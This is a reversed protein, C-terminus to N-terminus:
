LTDNIKWYHKIPTNEIIKYGMKNYFNCANCNELQTPIKLTYIKNQYLKLELGDILEKGIGKGQHRNDVAILGIQAYNNFIKYTVFGLIEDDIKYILIDDAFKKNISNDIWERYLKKFNEIGFLDDKLFRSYKGSEFALEYLTNLSDNQYSIVKTKNHSPNINNKEFVVKNESYNLNFGTIDFNKESKYYILDYKYCESYNINNEDLIEAIELDFFESDWNLRRM